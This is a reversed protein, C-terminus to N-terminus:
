LDEIRKSHLQKSDHNSFCPLITFRNPYKTVPFSDPQAAGGRLKRDFEHLAPCWRDKSTRCMSNGQLNRARLCRSLFVREEGGVSSRNCHICLM